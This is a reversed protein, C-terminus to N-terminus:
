GFVFKKIADDIPISPFMRVAQDAISGPYYHDNPSCPPTEVNAWAEDECLRDSGCCCRVYDETVDTDTWQDCGQLM